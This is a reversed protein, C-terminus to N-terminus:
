QPLNFVIGRCYKEKGEVIEFSAHPVATEFTWSYGKEHCWLAKVEILSKSKRRAFFRELAEDDDITDRDPLLGERDIKAITGDAADVEEYIAGRFEMLDDSAGFVVVLGSLKAESQEAETMEDTYERGTLLAALSEKTM